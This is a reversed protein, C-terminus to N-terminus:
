WWWPWWDREGRVQRETDRLFTVATFASGGLSSALYSALEDSINRADLRPQRFVSLDCLTTRPLAM